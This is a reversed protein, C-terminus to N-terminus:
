RPSLAITKLKSLWSEIKAYLENKFEEPLKNHKKIIEEFSKTTNIIEDTIQAYKPMLSLDGCVKKLEELISYPNWDLEIMDKITILKEQITLLLVITKKYEEEMSKRETLERISDNILSRIILRMRNAKKESDTITLKLLNNSISIKVRINHDNIPLELIATKNVDNREKLLGGIISIKEIVKNFVFDSDLNKFAFILDGTDHTTEISKQKRKEQAKLELRIMNILVDLNRADEFIFDYPILMASTSYILTQYNPEYVISYSDPKNEIYGLIISEGGAKIEYSTFNSPFMIRSEFLPIHVWIYDEKSVIPKSLDYRTTIGLNDLVENFRILDQWTSSLSPALLVKQHKKPHIIEPVTLIIADADNISNSLEYGKLRMGAIIWDNIPGIVSFKGATPHNRVIEGYNTSINKNSIIEIKVAGMTKKVSLVPYREGNIEIYDGPMPAEESTQILLNFIKESAKWARYIRM